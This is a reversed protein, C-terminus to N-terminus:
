GGQVVGGPVATVWCLAPGEAVDGSAATVRPVRPVTAAGGRAPVWGTDEMICGLWSDPCRCDGPLSSLPQPAPQGVALETAGCPGRM